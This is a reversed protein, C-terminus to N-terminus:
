KESKGNHHTLDNFKDTMTGLHKSNWKVRTLNFALKNNYIILIKLYFGKANIYCIITKYITKIRHKRVINFLKQFMNMSFKSSYVISNYAHIQEVYNLTLFHKLVHM